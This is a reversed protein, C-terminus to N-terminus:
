CVASASRSAPWTRAPCTGDRRTRASTPGSPRSPSSASRTPRGSQADELGWRELYAHAEAESAGAEHLILAANVEARRCPEHARVVALDRALDFEIGAAHVLAALTAGGESGLLLQPALM